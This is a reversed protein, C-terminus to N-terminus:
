RAPLKGASPAASQGGPRSGARGGPRGGAPREANEEGGVLPQTIRLYAYLDRLQNDTLGTLLGEPMLSRGMGNLAAIQSRNMPLNMGAMDRLVVLEADQSVLFGTHTAGAKTTLVYPAYGERIEANPNVVSLTLSATDDRKFSTLDPGIEGGKGHLRHCAACRANFLERGGYPSGHGAGIAAMIRAIERETEAPMTVVKPGFARDIRGNLAGNGVLRLKEQIEVPIAKADVQQAIVADLMAEASTVRSSLVSLAITKEAASFKAFSEIIVRTLAADDYSASSGLVASRLAANPEPLVRQFAAAVPAYPVEGFTTALRVREVSPTAPDVLLRLAEDLAGPDKQRVRLSLSGGGAKVLADVLSAPMPPLTRGDFAKEFGDILERRALADPAQRLLKECALFNENGGAAAFRRMLRAAIDTKVIPRQWLSSESSSAFMALVGARDSDCKSEIAWWIQLPLYPDNADEDHALLVEVVPLASAAPLRKASAALQSRVEVNSEKTALDVLSRAVTASVQNQDALLRVTWLRVYPDPHVLLKLATADDFGGSLNLAWLSELAFQGTAGTALEARLSPILSADRRDGLIRLATERTWRNNDRLAAVLEASSKKTFDFPAYGPKADASRVRYIRGDDKTIQGEHNRYHNVQLDHWDAVYIAGDPGHKIDVPRFLADDTRIVADVDRTAFTAGRPSIEAMPLYRNMPDVGILKGRYRPPLAGGDYIIFNHTFRAVDEHAMAPFYGFAYPNSLEGHKEFGKRLYGGQVYHFGRTNGGNHGSYVRGKEDIECGFTNGGGEAYVEFRRTEPHYRWIGQGTIHVLPERDLGPRIIDATVTSGIAAYLWGDPGWRLSNAVSHTDELNFGEIKVEPPGDPIDDNNADPYFLLHPPSMVWIGGRGRTVATTINLGEIFNTQKAFSGDGKSDEFITIRDKGRFAAKEPTDYPPAPKKRDYVIRWVSDRSVATLGAPEPYQLYQVVWMRGREDFNLFVPQAVDPEKLVLDITVDTPTWLNNVGLKADIQGAAWRIGNHLLQAFAPNQFDTPAGLSTYFTRGGGTRSFTWAIPEAPHGPITGFLVPEAGERLPASRYLSSSSEFPLAVGQLIVHSSRAATARAVPGAEYHNTYSGGIVDAYWEPWAALGAAVTQNRAPSFAHSATRIGVVPKGAAVHRRIVDLQSQPPPRRRVSVLLLDADAIEEIHDFATSDAGGTGSVTVVRFEKELYKAAFVPLSKATEYEPEAILMVLKPRVSASQAIAGASGLLLLGLGALVFTPHVFSRPM